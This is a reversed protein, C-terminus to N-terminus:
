GNRLVRVFTGYRYIPEPEAEIEVVPPPPPPKPLEGHVVTITKNKEIIDVIKRRLAFPRRVMKFAPMKRGGIGIIRITGYRFLKGLLGQYCFISEIRDTPIERATMCFAGERIMLRQNTVGYENFLFAALRFVFVVLVVAALSVLMNRVAWASAINLLTMLGGTDAQNVLHRWMIFLFLLFPLSLLVPKVAYMWHMAPVYLLEEGEQMNKKKIFRM